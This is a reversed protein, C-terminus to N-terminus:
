QRLVVDIRYHRLVDFRRANPNVQPEYLEGRKEHRVSSFLADILDLVDTAIAGVKVRGTLRTALRSPPM